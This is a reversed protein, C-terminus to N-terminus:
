FFLNFHPDFLWRYFTVPLKILLFLNQEYCLDFVAKFHIYFTLNLSKFIHSSSYLKKGGGLFVHKSFIVLLTTAISTQVVVDNKCCFLALKESRNILRSDWSEEFLSHALVGYIPKIWKKFHCPALAQALFTFMLNSVLMYVILRPDEKKKKKVLLLQLNNALM